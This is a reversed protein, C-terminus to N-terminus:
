YAACHWCYHSLSNVGLGAGQAIESAYNYKLVLATSGEGWFVLVSGAHVMDASWLTRCLKLELPFLM